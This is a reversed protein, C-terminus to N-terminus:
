SFIPYTFNKVNVVGVYLLNDTDLGVDAIDLELRVDWTGAELEAPSEYDIIRPTRSNYPVLIPTITVNDRTQTQSKLVDGTIDLIFAGLRGPQPRVSLLFSRLEGLFYYDFDFIDSGFFKTLDCDTKSFYLVDELFNIPCDIQFDVSHHTLAGFGSAVSSVNDYSVLVSNATITEQQNSSSPTVQGTLRIYFSGRVDDPLTFYINYSDSMGTVLVEVGTIGNGASAIGTTDISVNTEDFDSIAVDSIVVVNFNGAQTGSPPTIVFNVAM